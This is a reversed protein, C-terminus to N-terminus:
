TKASRRKVVFWCITNSSIINFSVINLVVTTITKAKLKLTFVIEIEICDRCKAVYGVVPFNKKLNTICILDLRFCYRDQKQITLIELVRKTSSVGTRKKLRKEQFKGCFAELWGAHRHM